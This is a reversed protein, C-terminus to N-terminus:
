VKVSKLLESAAIACSKNKSSGARGLIKFFPSEIGCPCDAGPQMVALDDMLVSQAPVSTIYPSILNLFGKQYYPLPKLTEVDRVYVQSWVPVHFEHHECEVYPICHEVSGYGDRIQKLPIGLMEHALQYLKRSSIAQSQAGKWGGGLFILSDQNLKLPSIKLDKMRKLTSHLFSPFGFIRVPLGEAEFEKLAKISGFLDFEHNGSGTSKLATFVQQTPAFNCLFHDTYATGLKSNESVEYSYLLYNTPQSLNTWGYYDFLFEVMKQPARISWEDFFMQSKQGSTGSSTLHLSIQSKDVTISEHTKFFLAPIMPAKAFDSTNILSEPSFNEIECLRQYFPNRDRHWQINEKMASVFLQDSKLNHQFPLRLDCLLEINKLSQALIHPRQVIDRNM